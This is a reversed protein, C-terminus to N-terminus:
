LLGFATSHARTVLVVSRIPLWHFIPNSPFALNQVVGHQAAVVRSYKLMLTSRTSIGICLIFKKIFKDVGLKGQLAPEMPQCTVWWELLINFSAFQRTPPALISISSIDIAPWILGGDAWLSNLPVMKVQRFRLIFRSIGLSSVFSILKLHTALLIIRLVRPGSSAIAVIVFCFGLVLCGFSCM